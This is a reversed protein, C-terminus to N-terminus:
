TAEPMNEQTKGTILGLLMPSFFFSSAYCYQKIQDQILLPSAVHLLYLMALAFALLCVVKKMNLGLVRIPKKL